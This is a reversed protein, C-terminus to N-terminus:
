FYCDDLHCSAIDFLMVRCGGILTCDPALLLSEPFMGINANAEVVPTKTGVETLTVTYDGIPVAAYDTAQAFGLGSVVPESSALDVGAQVLYVDVTDVLSNGHIVRWWGEGAPPERRASFPLVMVEFGFSLDGTVIMQNAGGDDISITSSGINSDDFCDTFAVEHVGPKIQFLNSAGASVCIPGQRSGEVDLGLEPAATGRNVASHRVFVDVHDGGTGGAGGCAVCAVCAVAVFLGM